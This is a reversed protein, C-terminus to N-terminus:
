PQDKAKKKDPKGAAKEPLPKGSKIAAIEAQLQKLLAEKEDILQQSTELQAELADARESMEKKERALRDLEEDALAKRDALSLNSDAKASKAKKGDAAVVPASLLSLFLSALFLHKINM